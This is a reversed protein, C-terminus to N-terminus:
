GSYLPLGDRLLQTYKGDLGQIRISSNYSTASTQQTQIGTSENLLMRIDGPKMNGKEALEEGAIFELRTPIDNFTRSSRTSEIMVTEMHEESPHLLIMQDNQEKPLPFSRKIILTEFGIYRIEISHEGDPINRLIAKGEENTTTGINLQQIGLSVGLLSDKTEANIITAEFQNQALITTSSILLM